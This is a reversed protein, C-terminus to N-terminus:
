EDKIDLEKKLGEIAWLFEDSLKEEHHTWIWRLREIHSVLKCIIETRSEAGAEFARAYILQTNGRAKLCYQTAQEDRQRELGARVKLILKSDTM